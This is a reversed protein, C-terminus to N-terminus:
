IGPGTCSVHKHRTHTLLSPDVAGYIKSQGATVDVTIPRQTIAFTNGNYTINYNDSVDVAGDTITLAGKSIAYPGGLV